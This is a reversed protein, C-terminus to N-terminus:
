ISTSRRQLLLAINPPCFKYKKKSYRQTVVDLSESSGDGSSSGHDSRDAGGNQAARMKLFEARQKKGAAGMWLAAAAVPIGGGGGGSSSNHNSVFSHQPSLLRSNQRPGLSSSRPPGLSGRSRQSPFSSSVRSSSVWDPRLVGPVPNPKTRPLPPTRRKDVVPAERGEAVLRGNFRLNLLQHRYNQSQM